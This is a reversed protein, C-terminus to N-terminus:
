HIDSLETSRYPDGGVYFYGLLSCEAHTIALTSVEPDGVLWRAGPYVPM